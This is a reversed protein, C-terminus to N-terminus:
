QEGNRCWRVFHECNNFVLNYNSEGLRSEARKVIEQASYSSPSVLESKKLIKSGDAFTELSDIKVAELLYHIIKGDGYYLGHHTYGMRQVYLHDGIYLEKVEPAFYKRIVNVFQSSSDFANLVTYTLNDSMNEVSRSIENSKSVIDGLKPNIRYAIEEQKDQLKKNNILSGIPGLLLNKLRM